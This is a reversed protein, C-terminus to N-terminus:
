PIAMDGIVSLVQGKKRFRKRVSGASNAKILSMDNLWNHAKSGTAYGM